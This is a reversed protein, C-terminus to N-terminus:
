CLFVRQGNSVFVHIDRYFERTNKGDKIHKLYKGLFKDDLLFSYPTVAKIKAHNFYVYYLHINDMFSYKRLICAM